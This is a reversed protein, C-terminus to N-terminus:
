VLYRNHSCFDATSTQWKVSEKTVSCLYPIAKKSMYKRTPLEYWPDLNKVLTKFSQKEIIWILLMDKAICYTVNDTSEKWKSSGRSYMNSDIKPLQKLQIKNGQLATASKNPRKLPQKWSHICKQITYVFIPFSTQHIVIPLVSQSQCHVQKKSVYRVFRKTQNKWDTAMMVRQLLDLIAGCM